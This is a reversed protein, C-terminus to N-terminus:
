ENIPEEKLLYTNEVIDRVEKISEKSPILNGKLKMEVLILKQKITSKRVELTAREPFLVKYIFSEQKLIKRKYTAICNEMEIGENILEKYSIIPVIFKSNIEPINKFIIDDFENSNLNSKVIWNDHLEDLKEPTRINSMIQSLNNKVGIKNGLAQTDKYVETIDNICSLDTIIGQKIPLNSYYSLLKTEKLFPYRTLIYITQIPVDIWHCLSLIIEDSKLAEIILSIEFKDGNHLKIKQLFAIHKRDGFGLIERLIIKRKFLVLNDISLTQNNENLHILILVLLIPSTNFLDAADSNQLVINILEIQYYQHQSIRSKLIQPFKNVFANMPHKLDKRYERIYLPFGLVIEECNGSAEQLYVNCSSETISVRIENGILGKLDILLESSSLITISQAPIYM